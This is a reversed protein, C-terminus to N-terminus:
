PSGAVLTMYTSFPATLSDTKDCAPLSATTARRSHRGNRRRPSGRLGTEASPWQSPWPRTWSEPQQSVPFPAAAGRWAPTRPDNGSECASAPVDPDFFIKDVLKEVGSLLPKGTREQQQRPVTLGLCRVARKRLHRLLHQGFHDARCARPDVEEHVLKPLEPEDVVVAIELHVVRQQANHQAVSARSMLAPDDSLERICKTAHRSRRGALQSGSSLRQASCCM